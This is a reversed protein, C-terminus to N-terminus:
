APNSSLEKLENFYEVAQGVFQLYLPQSQLQEM